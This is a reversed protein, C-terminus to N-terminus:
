ASNIQYESHIVQMCCVIVLADFWFNIIGSFLSICAHFLEDYQALDEVAPIAALL